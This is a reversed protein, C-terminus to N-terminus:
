LTKTRRVRRRKEPMPLKLEKTIVTETIMSITTNDQESREQLRKYLKGSVSIHPM